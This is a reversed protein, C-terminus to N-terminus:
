AAHPRPSETIAIDAEQRNVGSAQVVPVPRDAVSTLRGLAPTRRCWM